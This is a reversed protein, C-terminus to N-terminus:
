GGIVIDLAAWRNGPRGEWGGLWKGDFRVLGARCDGLDEVSERKTDERSLDTM